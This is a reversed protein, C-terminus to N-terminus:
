VLVQIEGRERCSARGIEIEQSSQRSTSTECCVEAQAPQNRRFLPPRRSPQTRDHHRGVRYDRLYEQFKAHAIGAVLMLRRLLSSSAKCSRSNASASAPRKSSRSHGWHRCVATDTQNVCGAASTYRVHNM